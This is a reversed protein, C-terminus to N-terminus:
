FPIMQLASLYMEPHLIPGVAAISMTIM